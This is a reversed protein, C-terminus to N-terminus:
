DLLCPLRCQLSTTTGLGLWARKDLRRYLYAKRVNRGRERSLGATNNTWRNASARFLHNLDPSNLGRIALVPTVDIRLGVADSRPANASEAIRHDHYVSHCTLPPSSEDIHEPLEGPM